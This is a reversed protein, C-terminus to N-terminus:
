RGDDESPVRRRNAVLLLMDQKIYQFVSYFIPRRGFIVGLLKYSYLAAIGMLIFKVFGILFPGRYPQILQCDLGCDDCLQRINRATTPFNHTYDINWFEMGLTLCDPVVLVLIGRDLLQNTLAQVFAYAHTGDHMHELVFAAYIVDFRRHALSDPFPPVSACVVEHDKGFLGCIKESRDIGCYRWGEKIAARLFLGTGIGVEAVSLDTRGPYFSQVVSVIRKQRWAELKQVVAPLDNLTDTFSDYVAM